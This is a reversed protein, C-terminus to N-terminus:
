DHNDGPNKLQFYDRAVRRLIMREVRDLDYLRYHSADRFAELLPERPYDRLLRLLQRLTPTKYKRGRQLLEGLYDGLEPALNLIEVQEPPPSAKPRRTRPPHHGELTIREGSAEIARRHTVSQHGCTLIIEQQTERVEVQRGIWDAPVSYRNTHLCVYGTVDAIRHHIRYPEPAWAPLPRLAAQERAFLEIPKAKLHRKYSANVRDCFARAQQNLDQWDAFSRGALFNNEIFHFPREVRGSRNADGLEHARFTFGYHEAFGEMEPVTIMAAGTGRLVVLHTNDIMVVEAAGGFSRLAERLFVKCDFRQFRPYFQFFLMRSYCLVASATQVRRNKGAIEVTHTSTDHQIEQGPEFPYEGVPTKAKKGIAHRRCFATLASYSIAAGEAQLEEHVRVQNGRCRQFLELIRERYPEAKQARPKPQPQESGSRLVNQITRRALGLIQAIFRQAHGERHLKLITTRTPPDLM